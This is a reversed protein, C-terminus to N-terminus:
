RQRGIYELLCLTTSTSAGQYHAAGKTQKNHKAHQFNGRRISGQTSCPESSPIRKGLGWTTFTLSIPVSKVKLILSLNSPHKIPKHFFQSSKAVPCGHALLERSKTNCAVLKKSPNKLPILLLSSNAIHLFIVMFLFKMKPAMNAIDIIAM